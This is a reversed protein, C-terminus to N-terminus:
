LSLLLSNHQICIFVSFLVIKYFWCFGNMFLQQQVCRISRLGFCFPFFFKERHFCLCYCYCYYEAVSVCYNVTNSDEMVQFHLIITWILGLTLKPNGDAIDDNRINVLKVQFLFWLLPDLFVSRCIYAFQRPTVSRDKNSSTWPLRCM